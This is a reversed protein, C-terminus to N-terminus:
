EAGGGEGDSFLKIAEFDNLGHDGFKQRKQLRSIAKKRYFPNLLFCLYRMIYKNASLM